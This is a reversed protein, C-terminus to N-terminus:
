ADALVVDAKECTINGDNYYTHVNCLWNENDQTPFEPRYMHGRTEERFLSAKAAAEALDLLNYNEIACKWDTNFVPSKDGLTMKPMEEKRIRELEAIGAEMNATTRTPQCAEYCANQIMRRVKQPRNGGEREFLEHLRAYEAKVIEEDLAPLSVNEIYEVAKSVAYSGNRPSINVTSGGQSGSYGGGRTSFLGAIGEVMLNEDAVPNGSREYAELGVELKTGEVDIGFVQKWLEINRQYTEGIAAFAEPSSFDVYVGNNETGGGNAICEAITQTFTIKNLTSYDMGRFFYNGDQDCIYECCGSDAGIGSQFSCAIGTPEYNLLDCQFFENGELACGHRFVAADIDGTNDPSNITKPGVTNWGYLWTSAGTCCITAKARIVRMSGTPIHLATVGTCIGDQVIVDTAITQDLIKVGLDGLTDLQHRSFGRYIGYITPFDLLPAIEGTEPNRNLLGYGMNEYRVMLNRDEGMWHEYSNKEIKQNTLENLVFDTSEQWPLDDRVFNIFQDWNYGAVGGFGHPGKEIVVVNKGADVAAIAAAVGGLGSGIICIDTDFVDYEIREGQPDDALAQTTTGLTTAATLGVTAAAGGAILDRRSVNMVHQTEM